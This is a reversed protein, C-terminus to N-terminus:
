SLTSKLTKETRQITVAAGTPGIPLYLTRCSVYGYLYVLKIAALRGAPARFTGFKDGKAGFCVPYRNLKQWRDSVCVFFVNALLTM